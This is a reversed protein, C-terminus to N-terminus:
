NKKKLSIYQQIHMIIISSAKEYRLKLDNYSMNKSNVRKSPMNNTNPARIPTINSYMSKPPITNSPMKNTNSPIKNTNSPM